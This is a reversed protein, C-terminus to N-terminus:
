LEVQPYSFRLGYEDAFACADTVYNAKSNLATGNYIQWEHIFFMQAQATNAFDANRYRKELEKKVTEETPIRYQNASTFGDVFWDGRLDTAVFVLGEARDTLYDHTYLYSADNEDFYYSLRSDDASIFGLAGCKADRMGRLAELSGAFTHLRPMRDVSQYSGTVREVQEM